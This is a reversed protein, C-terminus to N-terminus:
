VSELFRDIEWDTVTSSWEEFEARRSALYVPLFGALARRLVADNELVGLAADLTRPLAAPPLDDCASTRVGDAGAALLGALLAYVNCASDPTRWELRSQPGACVGKWTVSRETASWRTNTPSGSGPVLRRYSNVTSNALGTLAQTHAMVGRRFAHFVSSLGHEASADYFVPQASDTNVLSTHIHLANGFLKSSPRPMFSAVLGHRAAVQQTILKFIVFRDGAQVPDSHEFIIEWQGHAVEHHSGLPRIGCQQLLTMVERCVAQGRTSGVAQWYGRRDSPQPQAGGLEFLFFEIETGVFASFGLNALSEVQSQLAARADITDEEGTRTGCMLWPEGDVLYEAAPDPVLQIDHHDSLGHTVASADLTPPSINGDLRASPVDFSRARGDIDTFVLQAFHTPVEPAIHRTM